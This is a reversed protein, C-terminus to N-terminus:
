RCDVWQLSLFMDFTVADTIEEVSVLNNMLVQTSVNFPQGSNPLINWLLLEPSAILINTRHMKGFLVRSFFGMWQFM